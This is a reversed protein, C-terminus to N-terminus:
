DLAVSSRCDPDWTDVPSLLLSYSARIPLSHLFLSKIKTKMKTALPSVDSCGAIAVSFGTAFGFGVVAFGFGVVAFGFGVVALGAASFGVVANASCNGVL